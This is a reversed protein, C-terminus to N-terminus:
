FLVVAWLLLAIELPLESSLLLPAAHCCRASFYAACMEAAWSHSSSDSWLRRLDSCSYLQSIGQLSPPTAKLAEWDPLAWRQARNGAVQGFSQQEQYRRCNGKENQMTRGPSLVTWALSPNLDLLALSFSQSACFIWVGAFPEVDGHFNSFQKKPQTEWHM